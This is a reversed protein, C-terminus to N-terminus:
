EETLLVLQRKQFDNKGTELEGIKKIKGTFDM